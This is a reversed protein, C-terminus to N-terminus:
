DSNSAQRPGYDLRGDGPDKAPRVLILVLLTAIAPVLGAGILVPGFSYRDTVRGILFTSIITGAGAAAGSMGSVSAVADNSYLDAPLTLAMTSWAAYSFTAVSFLAVLAVFSSIWLLLIILTMGIGGLVIVLKRARLVSWGRRICYSSIGGGAFNGLDAFLFPIWFGLLANQMRFGKAVLFIAFWDTIFFWVPDTLGKGLIIGWTEKRRLLHTWRCDPSVPREREHAGLSLARNPAGPYVRRWLLLWAFGLLGTLMFAPRWTGWLEYLAITLVPAIAAGVASGSDFLAVALSRESEPFWESVAKTAGPWNAAEGAGLLFRVASFSKLGGAFAAAFSSLSYWLVALSLGRKTGVRDLLWGSVPQFITYAVRFAIVIVAFDSNTWAFDRKLQPALVSLTQRDIYNITTSAFLLSAIWWRYPIRKVISTSSTRTGPASM